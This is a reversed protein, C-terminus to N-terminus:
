LSFKLSFPLLYTNKQSLFFYGRYKDLTVKSKKGWVKRVVRNKEKKKKKKQRKRNSKKKKRNPTRTSKKNEHLAFGYM